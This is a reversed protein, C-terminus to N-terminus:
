FIKARMYKRPNADFDRLLDQLSKMSGVLTEYLQPNTLLEGAAGEGRNLAALSEDTAALLRRLKQYSADDGLQARSQEMQARAQQITRRLDRLASVMDNYQADSAYFQGAAGEGRQISQLQEDFRILPQEMKTYLNTTFFAQGAPSSRSALERMDREFVIVSRLAQDYEQQGVVYHGVATAPSAVDAVMSDVKRLSDQLGYILDAKDAATELPESRLETGNKAPLASKGAAIDLFKDGIMTDSGISTVSDAPIRPLYSTEVRLDVRVARQKDLYGSIAIRRVAGVRIGNLRVPANVGLGTADPLYTRMEVKRAFLGVGGGTLLWILVGLLTSACLAVSTVRARMGATPKIELEAM